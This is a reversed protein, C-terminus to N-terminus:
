SIIYGKEGKEKSRKRAYCKWHLSRNCYTTHDWRNRRFILYLLCLIHGISPNRHRVGNQPILLAESLYSKVLKPCVHYVM